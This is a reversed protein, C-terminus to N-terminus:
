LLIHRLTYYAAIIAIVLVALTRGDRSKTTRDIRQCETFISPWDPQNINAILNPNLHSLLDITAPLDAPSRPGWDLHDGDKSVILDARTGDEFVIHENESLDFSTPDAKVLKERLADDDKLFHVRNESPFFLLPM